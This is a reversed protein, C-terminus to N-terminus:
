RLRIRGMARYYILSEFTAWEQAPLEEAVDIPMFRVASAEDSASLLVGNWRNAYFEVVFYQIVDGNPYVV